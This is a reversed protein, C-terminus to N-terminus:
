SKYKDKKSVKEVPKGELVLVMEGKPKQAIVKELVETVSGRIYEEFKKSIERALCINRKPVLENLQSLTKEIRHPSEYLVVTTTQEVIFNLRTQRGKKHPLFGEFYFKECPMGSAVLAPVFATAGPLCEVEVGNAIAASSLSYGPDSIGPTGADSVFALSHGEKIKNVWQDAKENENALHFSHCRQDIEFHKFLRQAVRTDEALVFDVSKLIDIARFTMDDLNGVPTPVLYLKHEITQM